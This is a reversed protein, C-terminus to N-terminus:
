FRKWSPRKVNLLDFLKDIVRTFDIIGEAGEFMPHSNEM